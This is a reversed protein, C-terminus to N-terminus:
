TTEDKGGVPDVSGGLEGVSCVESVRLGRKRPARKRAPPHGDLHEGSPSPKEKRKRVPKKARPIKRLFGDEGVEWGEKVVAEEEVQVMRGEIFSGKKRLTEESLRYVKKPRIDIPIQDQIREVVLRLEESFRMRNDRRKESDVTIGRSSMGRLVADVRVFHRLFMDWRGESELKKRIGNYCCLTVDSDAANYWEPRERAQLRWPPMDPCYVTSVYKLGMPLSPELAHWMHMADFHDGGFVCGNAVLRPIDFGSGNWSVKPNPLALVEKAVTIYPEMWPMTIAWGERHSFSIRLISYSSDDELAVYESDKQESDIGGYPTEIDFAVPSDPSAKLEALFGRLAVMNPSLEYKRTRKYLRGRAAEVAKILDLQWIRVLEFNGRMIYSPHYTGIVLGLATDFYYGRLQDIGWHGTLRRLAQNGLALLVRPKDSSIWGTLHRACSRLADEEYAAGSLINGPPRCWITNYLRFDDRRFALGTSPDVLREVMRTLQEGAKGVFPVGKAEEEEGLAEGVLAVGHTLNGSPVSFGKGDGYLVCGKCEDPKLIM